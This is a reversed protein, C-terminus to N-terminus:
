GRNTVLGWKALLVEGFLCTWSPGQGQLCPGPLGRGAGAPHSGSGGLVQGPSPAWQWLGRTEVEREGAALPLLVWEDSFIM